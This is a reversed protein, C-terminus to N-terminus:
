GDTVIGGLEKFKAILKEVTKPSQGYNNAPFSAWINSVKIIAAHIRGNDIDDLAKRERILQLAWKDQSEPGFDPLKLQKKYHEWHKVLSSINVVPQLANAEQISCRVLAVM